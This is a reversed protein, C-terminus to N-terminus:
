AIFGSVEQDDEIMLIRMMVACMNIFNPPYYEEDEDRM